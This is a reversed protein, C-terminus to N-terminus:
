AGDCSLAYREELPLPQLLVSPWVAQRGLRKADISRRVIVSQPRAASCMFSRGVLM